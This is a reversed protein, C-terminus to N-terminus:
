LNAKRLNTRVSRCYSKFFKEVSDDEILEDKSSGKVAFEIKFLHPQGAYEFRASEPAEWVGTASWGYVSWLVSGAIDRSKFFVSWFRDDQKKIKYIKREDTKKYQSSNYCIDPTHVSTPGAAGMILMVQITRGTRINEYTQVRDHFCELLSMARENLRKEGLFKWDESEFELSDLANVIRDVEVNNGWRHTLSGHIYGSAITAVMALVSIVISFYSKM